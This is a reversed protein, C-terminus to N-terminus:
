PGSEKSRGVAYTWILAWANLHRGVQKNFATQARALTSLLQRALPSDWTGMKRTGTAFGVRVCLRGTLLDSAQSHKVAEVLRANQQRIVSDAVVAWGRLSGSHNRHRAFHCVM